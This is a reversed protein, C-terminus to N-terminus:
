IWFIFILSSGGIATRLTRLAASLHNKVTQESIGLKEAIQANTLLSDRSLEYIQLERPTLKEKAATVLSLFEDYMVIEEPSVDTPDESCHEIYEEFKPAKMQQRLIDIIRYRAISFIFSKFNCSCDIMKRYIWLRMFTDQVIDQAANRNRLQKLAFSFICDAYEDYIMTFAKYSGQKLNNICQIEDLM